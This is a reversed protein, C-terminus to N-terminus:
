RCPSQVQRGSCILASWARAASRLLLLVLTHPCACHVTCQLAAFLEQLVACLRVFRIRTDGKIEDIRFFVAKDGHPVQLPVDRAHAMRQCFVSRAVTLVSLPITCYAHMFVTACMAGGGVKVLTYQVFGQTSAVPLEFMPSHQWTPGGVGGEVNM